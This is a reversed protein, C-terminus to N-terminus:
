RQVVLKQSLASTGDDLRVLYVGASLSRLDLPFEGAGAGTFDRKAVPRGSIDFLTVSAPGAQALSYEINLVNGVLPSPSLALSTRAYPEMVVSGSVGAASVIVVDINNKDNTDAFCTMYATCTESGGTYDWTDLLVVASDGVAIEINARYDSYLSPRIWVDVGSVLAPVDGMNTLRVRVPVPGPVESTRPSLVETAVDVGRNVVVVDTDNAHNSDSPYTIWATCTEESHAPCVWPILAVGVAEHPALAIDQRHDAYGSPEISVHLSEVLAPVDGMNTLRIQVEALGPPQHKVPSVIETAVDRIYTGLALTACLAIILVALVARRQM